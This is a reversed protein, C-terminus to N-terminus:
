IFGEGSGTAHGHEDNLESAYRWLTAVGKETASLEDCRQLYQEIAQVLIPFLIASAASAATLPRTESLIVANREKSEQM